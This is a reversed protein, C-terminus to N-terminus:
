PVSFSNEFYNSGKDRYMKLVQRYTETMVDLSYDWTYNKLVHQRGNEGMQKRLKDDAALKMIAEAAAQPNDRPVVFGTIGDKVVEKLGDADSVVVPLGCASAELIAVGFSESDLRSLAVYIDINELAEPVFDHKIFGNFIVNQEIGLHNVMDKLRKEDSGNGYISLKFNGTSNELLDFAKILTDIGYKKSLTKVTGILINKRIKKKGPKFKEIDIGFPTVFIYPHRFIKKTQEAMCHSTSAIADANKLNCKVIMNHLFSKVPFDYVDSGWVSLLLPHFGSLRALLGYGTAYHANLLDPKLKKLLKKLEIFSAIYGYPAKHKLIHIKVKHSFSSDNLKIDHISIVHVDLGKEVLGNAWRITHISHTSSLLVIKM